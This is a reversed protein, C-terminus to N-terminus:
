WPLGTTAHAGLLLELAGQVQALTALAGLQQRPRGLWSHLSIGGGVGACSLQNNGGTSTTSVVPGLGQAATSATAVLWRCGHWCLM